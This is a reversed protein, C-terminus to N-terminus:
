LTVPLILVATDEGNQQASVVLVNQNKDFDFKLDAVVGDSTAGVTKPGLHFTATDGSAKKVILTREKRNLKVVTGMTKTVKITGLDHLAVITRLDGDGYYYVIAHDGVAAFKDAAISDVSVTKSFDLPPGPPVEWRFHGSSGDDTNVEVIRAKPHLATVTGSTAYIRTQAHASVAIFLIASAILGSRSILKM